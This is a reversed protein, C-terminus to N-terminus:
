VSEFPLTFQKWPTRGAEDQLTIAWHASSLLSKSLAAPDQSDRLALFSAHADVPWDPEPWGQGIEELNVTLNKTTTTLRKDTLVHIM